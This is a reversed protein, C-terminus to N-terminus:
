RSHQTTTHSRTVDLIPAGYVYSMLLRFTLLKVRIRSVHLFHHARLLALFYCIPNLEPNLSNLFEIIPLLTEFANRLTLGVAAWLFVQRLLTQISLPRFITGEGTLCLWNTNISTQINYRRRDFMALERWGEDSRFDLKESLEQKGNSYCVGFANNPTGKQGM